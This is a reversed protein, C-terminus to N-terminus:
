LTEGFLPCGPRLPGAISLAIAATMLSHPANSALSLRSSCTM